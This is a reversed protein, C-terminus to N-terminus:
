SNRSLVQFIRLVEGEPSSIRGVERLEEPQQLWKVKRSPLYYYNPPDRILNWGSM